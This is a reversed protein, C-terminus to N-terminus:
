ALGEIARVLKAVQDLAMSAPLLLERQEGLRLRISEAAQSGVVEAFTISNISDARRRRHNSSPQLKL